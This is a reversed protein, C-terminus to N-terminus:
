KYKHTTDCYPCNSKLTELEKTLESIKANLGAVIEAMNKSKDRPNNQIPTIWKLNKPCCNKPNDDIHGVYAGEFYGPVHVLAVARHIYLINSRGNVFVNVFKYGKGVTDVESLIKGSKGVVKFDDTLNYGEYLPIPQMNGHYINDNNDWRPM